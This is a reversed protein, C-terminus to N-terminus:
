AKGACSGGVVISFDYIVLFSSDLEGCLSCFLGYIYVNVGVVRRFGSRLKQVDCETDVSM